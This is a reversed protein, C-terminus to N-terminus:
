SKKEPKAYALNFVVKKDDSSELKMKDGYIKHFRTKLMFILMTTNIRKSGKLKLSQPIIGTLDALAMQEYLKLAAAEGKKKADAFEPKKKVWEYGTDRHCDLDTMSAEFSHGKSLSKFLLEPFHKQYKTM